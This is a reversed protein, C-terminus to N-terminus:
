QIMIDLEVKLKVKLKENSSIKRIMRWIDWAEGEITIFDDIHGDCSWKATIRILLLYTTNRGMRSTIWQCMNKSYYWRYRHSGPGHYDAFRVQDEAAKLELKRLYRRRPYQLISIWGWKYQQLLFIRANLWSRGIWSTFSVECWVRILVGMRLNTLILPKESMFASFTLSAAFFTATLALSRVVKDWTSVFSLTGVSSTLEDSGSLVAVKSLLTDSNRSTALLQISTQVPPNIKWSRGSSSPNFNELPKWVILILSTYPSNLPYESVRLINKESVIHLIHCFEILVYM